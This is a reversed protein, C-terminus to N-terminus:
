EHYPRVLTTRGMEWNGNGSDWKLGSNFGTATGNWYFLRTLGGGYDYFGGIDTFGDGNFDTAVFRSRWAEWNGPGSDWKVSLDVGNDPKSQFVWLKTIASGYDYFAGIDTRGDNNFDGTVIKASDNEWNGAGSDWRLGSAFSGDANANWYFIRTLGGGYNYFGNIDDRGDGNFDGTVFRSRWAEWNGNGSDWKMSLTFTGDGKSQFVWLATRANSYDYFAGIDTLGDGNFDASVFKARDNEWNGNGSEWVMATAFGGEAKATWTFIRTFGNGYYYFGAIDTRGDGNFDGSVFKSRWAEWNGPGSNWQQKMGFANEPTGTSAFLSTNANGYDYFAAVDGKKDGNFDAVMPLATKATATGSAPQNQGTSSVPVVRYYWTQQAPLGAHTFSPTTVTGLLAAQTLPVEPTQSGYVKYSASGLSSVPLWSLNIAHQPAAKATLALMQSQLSSVINDVRSETAGDRTETEGFCGKMWSASHVGVLSVSGNAERLAPGGSDGKCTTVGGSQSQLGLTTAAVSTVSTVATHPKSPVWETATRGFGAIRVSDGAAPATTGLAVPQVDTVATELRALVLNRDAQPVLNVVKVARGVTATTAVAPAGGQPNEPFCSKATLVWNPDVLAGSCSRATGVDVKALFTYAGDAAPTGGTIAEASTGVVLTATTLVAFLTASRLKTSM